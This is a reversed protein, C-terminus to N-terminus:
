IIRTDFSLSIRDVNATNPEVYHELWSPFIILKGAEPLVPYDGSTINTLEEICYDPMHYDVIWPNRFVINGNAGSEVGKLYYTGSLSAGLHIHPVNFGSLNNINLWAASLKNQLNKKLGIQNHISQAMENIKSFLLQFQKQNLDFRESQWGERNSATVGKSKSKLYLAHDIMEQNNIDLNEIAVISSFINILNM